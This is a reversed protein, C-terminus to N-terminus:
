KTLADYKTSLMIFLVFLATARTYEGDFLSIVGAVTTTIKAGLILIVTIGIIINWIKEMM